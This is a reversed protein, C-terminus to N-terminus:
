RATADLALRRQRADHGVALLDRVDDAVQEAVRDLERRAPPRTHTRADRRCVSPDGADEDFHAVGADADCGLM